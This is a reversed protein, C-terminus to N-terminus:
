AKNSSSSHSKTRLRRRLSCITSHHVHRYAPRIIQCSIASRILIPPSSKTRIRAQYHCNSAVKRVITGQSHSGRPREKRTPQMVAPYGSLSPMWNWIPDFSRISSTQRILTWRSNMKLRWSWNESSNRISKTTLCSRDRIQRIWHMLLSIQDISRKPSIESKLRQKNYISKSHPSSKLKQRFKWKLIPPM